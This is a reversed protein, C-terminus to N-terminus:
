LAANIWEVVYPVVQEVTTDLAEIDADKDMLDAAVEEPTNGLSGPCTYGNEKTAVDLAHFVLRRLNDTSM